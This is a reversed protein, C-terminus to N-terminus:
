RARAQGDNQDNNVFGGRPEPLEPGDTNPDDDPPAVAWKAAVILSGSMHINLPVNFIEHTDLARVFGTKNNTPPDFIHVRLDAAKNISQNGHAISAYKARGTSANSPIAGDIM